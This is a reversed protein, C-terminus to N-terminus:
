VARASRFRRGMRLLDELRPPPTAPHPLGIGPRHNGRFAADGRTQAPLDGLSGLVTGGQGPGEVLFDEVGFRFGVAPVRQDCRQGGLLGSTACQSPRLQRCTATGSSAPRRLATVTVGWPTMAAPRLLVAAKGPGPASPYAMRRDPPVQRESARGDSVSKAGRKRGPGAVPSGTWGGKRPVGLLHELRDLAPRRSSSGMSRAVAHGDTLPAGVRYVPLEDPDASPVDRRPGALVSVGSEPQWLERFESDAGPLERLPWREAEPLARVEGLRPLVTPFMGYAARIAPNVVETGATDLRHVQVAFGMGRWTRDARRREWTFEVLGFDRIMAGRTRYEGFDSGLVATVQEPTSHADLGLVTGSRLVDAYFELDSM